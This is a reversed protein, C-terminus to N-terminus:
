VKVLKVKTDYFSASGGIPDTLCTTKTGEDLLLVPNSCLGASRRPDGKITQGDVVVDRAGYAWHGYSWSVLIVGPRVGQIIKVNGQVPERQGNALDLIGDPNTRSLLRVVDGDRLGLTAADRPNILVHNTPMVGMGGQMWYNSITRSQGGTVEKYTIIHFPMDKDDVITGTSNQTPEFHAVGTFPKGTISDKGLAVPEVFLNLQRGYPHGVYDGAYGKASAEFRGGRNMVYVVKRWLADGVANKWKAEDYVGAPLHARAKRFIALETDDADPVADAADKADGFAINAVGRLYYDEPRNFDGHDGFGKKGIGPLGLAKAIAIMVAEMSIPMQEGDVTVIEPVPAAIPQRIRINKTVEPPPSGLFAWREVYTIDPFIYDAYMSSEAIVIDDAIYLPIKDVDALMKIQEAGAPTALAPTGMHLWLIKVPYPYQAYAAPIVEQYVNSTYPYFPRPAPYDKFLTTKEYTSGERTLKIGSAGIKGPHGGGLDFPKDKNGIANWAGGGASMGGKWDMNGILLNLAILAQATYYGNTHQVAGRYFEVGAKKGHSTFERALDAVTTTDVGALQAWEEIAKASVEDKLLQLGSKVAFGQLTTDAFLDGAVANKDDTPNVLTPAGKVLAVFPDLAYSAGDPTVWATATKGASDTTEKKEVLKLDSGRVLAGAHGKDDVKVLWTANTWTKEKVALAAAKNANALYKSDYRNNDIIWRLMGLAFPLDGTPLVPIWWGKAATKSLRPDVVAIKLNREVLSKTVAEAMTTPGFNAEFAGTGWFIVFEANLTDPKMHNPGTAWKGDGYQATTYTYAIHHSQECITTHDYWNISGCTNLTFRQAYNNRGPEIRGALFVFQNNKVGLDPHDPDILLNLEGAHKSKFEDLKMKKGAVATADAALGAVGKADKTALVDKFGPVVRDEGIDAFLKGGNVIENIAQDFPIAQWKSSGRPGARKLVKVIRYPDYQTQITAQGKPCLKGDVRAADAPSTKYDIPLLMNNPSYPNGDVKVLIGDQIKGKITCQTNCQLCEGYIINEPSALPYNADGAASAEAAGEWVRHLQSAFLATGGLFASAKLFERRTTVGHAQPRTEPTETSVRAEM